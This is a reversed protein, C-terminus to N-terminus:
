SIVCTQDISQECIPKADLLEVSWKDEQRLHCEDITADLKPSPFSFANPSAGTKEDLDLREM